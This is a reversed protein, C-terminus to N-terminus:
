RVNEDDFRDLLCQRRQDAEAAEVDAYGLLNKYYVKGSKDAIIGIAGALKYQDLYPQMAATVESSVPPDGEAAFTSAISAILVLGLAVNALKSRM